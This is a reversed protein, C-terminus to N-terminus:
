EQEHDETMPYQWKLAFDSRTLDLNQNYYPDGKEFYVPWKARFADAEKLFRDHREKDDKAKDSGRSISEYHYLEAYINLVVLLGLDRVKLCYDADNFAVVFREDFGGAKEYVERKTMMCAATVASLDQTSNGRGAYTFAEAPAGYFMHGAAGGLGIIVGVHQVTDDPYLLRAGVVGVDKRECYGLMEKMWDPEIVEVDNNLFLLYEGKSNAVGFNNVRSYNFPETFKVVKVNEHSNQIEDYYELIDDQTSGNEVVIIEYNKYTTKDFISDIARKLDEKHDKNPIIISVLPEGQVEFISRYRGYYKTMYAKAKLGLRDYHAQVARRGNEYAYLKSEPNGATSAPHSRWHYLPM